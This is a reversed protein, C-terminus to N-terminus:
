ELYVICVRGRTTILILESNCSNALLTRNKEVANSLCLLAQSLAQPYNLPLANFPEQTRHGRGIIQRLNM